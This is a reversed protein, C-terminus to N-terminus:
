GSEERNVEDDLNYKRKRNQLFPYMAAGIFSIGGLIFIGAVLPINGREFNKKEAISPTSTLEDSKGLVIQEAKSEDLSRTTNVESEVKSDKDSISKTVTPKITSTPKTSSTPKPTFSPKTTSTLKATPTPTPLVPGSNSEGITSTELMTFPGGDPSRGISRDGPGSIGSVSNEGFDIKDLYNECNLSISDESDKIWSVKWNYDGKGIVKYGSFKDVETFSIKQGSYGEEHLHLYCGNLSEPKGNLTYLEVWEERPHFENIIIQAFSNQPIILFFIILLTALFTVNFRM